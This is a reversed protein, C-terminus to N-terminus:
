KLKWIRIRPGPRTMSTIHRLPAYFADNTDFVPTPPGPKLPDTDFVLTAHSGLLAEQRPTLGPTFFAIPPFSDSMVYEVGDVKLTQLDDFRVVRVTYLVPNQPSKGLPWSNAEAPNLQPKGYPWTDTAVITSGPAIHTEIWQRALTRTDTRNLLRNLEIDRVFCPTLLLTLGFGALIGARRVGFHASALRALDSVLLGGLLAMASFHAMLYRYKVWHSHTVGVFAVVLFTIISLTGPRPHILAWLIATVLFIALAIGFSDPMAHEVLWSWGYGAPAHSGNILFRHLVRLDYLTQARDLFFYPTASFFTIAAIGGSVYIKRDRLAQGLSYHQRWCLELHAAMVGCFVAGAPYKTATALGTFFGAGVYDLSRGRLAIRLAMALALTLWFAMPTDVTAYKSERVALTTFSQIAAAAIAAESGFAPAAAFYVAVITATGLGASVRRAVLYALAQANSQYFARFNQREGHLAAYYKLAAHQFYIQAAPKTALHPNWDSEFGLARSVLREEDPRLKDPLGFSTATFRLWGGVVVLMALVVLYVIRRKPRAGTVALQCSAPSSEVGAVFGATMSVVQWMGFDEKLVKAHREDIKSTILGIQELGETGAQGL